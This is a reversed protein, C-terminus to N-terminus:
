HLGLLAFILALTTICYLVIMAIMPGPLRERGGRTGVQSAAQRMAGSTRSEFPAADARREGAQQVKQQFVRPDPTRPLAPPVPPPISRAGPAVSDTRTSSIHEVDSRLESAHQYRLQPEKDLTRLVVEDLRVDISVRKSPPAFRGIPLEGTLVEYFVVGLAYIDARHDVTLPKEWQEPAMYHPTGMVQHSRTLVPSEPEKGVVKSLGFDLVKVQGARNVLINEPKIDRHVVGHDHAYQLVECIQMVIKLAAAPEISKARIMQRLNVGDVFEMVFYFHPGAQGFDHV